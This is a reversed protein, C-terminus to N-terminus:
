SAPPGEREDLEEVRDQLREITVAQRYNLDLLHSIIRNVALNYESQRQPFPHLLRLLTRKVRVVIAGTRRQSAFEVDRVLWGNQMAAIDEAVKAYVEHSLVPDAASRAEREVIGRM